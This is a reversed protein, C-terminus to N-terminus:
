ERPEFGAMRWDEEEPRPAVFNRWGKPREVEEPAANLRKPDFVRWATDRGLMDLYSGSWGPFFQRLGITAADEYSMIARAEREALRAQPIEHFVRLDANSFGRQPYDITLKAKTAGLYPGDSLLSVVLPKTERAYREFLFVGAQDDHLLSLV